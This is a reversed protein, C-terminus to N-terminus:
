GLVLFQFKKPNTKMSNVNFWKRLVNLDYKFNKYLVILIVIAVIVGIIFSCIQTKRIFAFIESIFINFLPSGLISDQEVCKILNHWSNYSSWNKYM